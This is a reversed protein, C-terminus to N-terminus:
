NAVEARMDKGKFKQSAIGKLVEEKFSKDVEFFSFKELIEIDGIDARKKSKSTAKNIIELMDMKKLQDRKGLNFFFRTMNENNRRKGGGKRDRDKDRDRGGRDRDRDRGRERRSGPIDRENSLRMEQLDNRDKYYLALDKLQFQLLQHVLEEKTFNSLDPILNSDFEFFNDHETFLKEFVGGVQAKIIDNGTPIKKEVIDIKTESKIQRLKRTEEPKILAMSIGDKGARGTRGSRHVFVEPDDPLSYHIVHTLADVDLGRAAVDTAVLIDINKLRFKKMVTDRQAQSLDGHLADAAYANQMLFDAVEQTEMRTRCFIISYQNPNADLLRKLAEKKQRYGVVYYEHTINKKVANISGVSIRHPNTLYNKSIREVEKSMTASFLLTQKESPTESLITELDDKFGMSLMEDAEDLVLWHIESFDLAKRGILDIVRGPTGVIIQPKERLSRIQETISSGGYVATTKVNHLYKTYNKIDKTIQLCLERTPCLVLLQIKRSTDDIMDLIPLSFAATKGTGTAALAILDRIDSLIFPITQKQIETPQEYGLDGIAKLIDPGLNSETFLNM